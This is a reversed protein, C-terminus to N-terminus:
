RLVAREIPSLNWHAVVAYLFEGLPKLLLPDRPAVRSWEAEFLIWYAPLSSIRPRHVPPITPIIATGEIDWVRSEGDRGIWSKAPLVRPLTVRSASNKRAWRGHDKWDFILSGDSRRQCWLREGAGDARALALHPLDNGFTGTQQITKVLDIVTRRKALAKYAAM